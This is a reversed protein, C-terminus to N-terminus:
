WALPAHCRLDRHPGGQLLMSQIRTSEALLDPVDRAIVKLICCWAPNSCTELIQKDGIQATNLSVSGDIKRHEKGHASLLPLLTRCPYFCGQRAVLLLESNWTSVRAREIHHHETGCAEGTLCERM